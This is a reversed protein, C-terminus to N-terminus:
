PWRGLEVRGPERHLRLYSVHREHDAYLRQEVPLEAAFNSSARVRSPAPASPSHTVRECCSATTPRTRPFLAARPPSRSFDPVAESFARSEQSYKPALAVNVALAFLADSHRGM